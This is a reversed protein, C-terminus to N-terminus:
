VFELPPHVYDRYAEEVGARRSELMAEDAQQLMADLSVAGNAFGVIAARYKVVHGQSLAAQTLRERLKEAVVRAGDGATEPLLVAFEAGSIRAVVDSARLTGTMVGAMQVLLAEGEAHGAHNMIREFGEAELYLLSVPRKYRKSRNLEVAAVERFFRRNGLNTLPDTQAHERYSQAAFRLSPAAAGVLWLVGLSLAFGGVLVTTDNVGGEWLAAAQVAAGGVAGMRGALGGGYWGLLGVPVVLLLEVPLLVPSRWIGLGVVALLVVAVLVGAARGSRARTYLARKVQVGGGARRSQSSESLM